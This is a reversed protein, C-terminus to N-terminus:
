VNCNEVHAAVAANLVAASLGGSVRIYEWVFRVFEQQDAVHGGTMRYRMTQAAADVFLLLRAAPSAPLEPDLSAAQAVALEGFYDTDRNLNCHWLDHHTRAIHNVHAGNDPLGCLCFITHDNGTDSVRYEGFRCRRFEERMQALNAPAESDPVALPSYGHVHAWYLLGMALDKAAEAVTPLHEFSILINM